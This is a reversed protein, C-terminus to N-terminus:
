RKAQRKCTRRTTRKRRSRGGLRRRKSPPNFQIPTSIVYEIAEEYQPVIGLYYRTEKNKFVNKLEIEPGQLLLSGIKQSISPNNERLEQEIRIPINGKLFYTNYFHYIIAWAAKEENARTNVSHLAEVFSLFDSINLISTSYPVCVFDSGYSSSLYYQEGRKIIIFYHSIIYENKNRDYDYICLYNIGEVIQTADTYEIVLDNPVSNYFFDYFRHNNKSTITRIIKKCIKVLRHYIYNTEGSVKLITIVSYNSIHRQVVHLVGIVLQWYRCGSSVIKLQSRTTQSSINLVTNIFKNITFRNKEDILYEFLESTANTNTNANANANANAAAM